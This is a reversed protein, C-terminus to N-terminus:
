PREAAALACQNKGAELEDALEEDVPILGLNALKIRRYTDPVAGCREEVWAVFASRDTIAYPPNRAPLEGLRAEVIRGAAREDDGSSHAPFIRLGAPWDRRVKELSRWLKETWEAARDAIDPRGISSVFLLDGTLALEDGLRLAVSGDTHGPLEEVAFAADGLRLQEGDFLPELELRGPRADYPDIADAPHLRYPVGRERALRPGGSLYDAHCHTDVVAVLRAGADDLAGRWPALDRGPDVAIAEGGRLALYGLAGKGVRDFQILRDLAGLGPVDRAVVATMYRLMGGTLSRADFGLERLWAAVPRSSIGRDCVVAVPRAPDLGIERPDRLGGLRSGPVNRFDRAAVHGRAAREPARIDLIQPDEESEIARLLEAPSLERDNM